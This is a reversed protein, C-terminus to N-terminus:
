VGELVEFTDDEKEPEPTVPPQDFLYAYPEKIKDVFGSTIKIKGEGLDRVFFVINLSKIRTIKKNEETYTEEVQVNDDEKYFRRWTGLQLKFFDIATSYSMQSTDIKNIRELIENSDESPKVKKIDGRTWSEETKNTTIHFM